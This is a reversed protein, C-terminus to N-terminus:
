TIVMVGKVIKWSYDRFITKYRISDLQGVSIQRKLGLVYGVDRLKWQSRNITKIHIDGNGMINFPKDQEVTLM